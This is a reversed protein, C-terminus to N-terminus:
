GRPPTGRTLNLKEVQAWIGDTPINPHNVDLTMVFAKEASMLALARYMREFYRYTDTKRYVKCTMEWDLLKRLGQLLEV